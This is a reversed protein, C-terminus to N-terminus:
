PAPQQEQDRPDTGGLGRRQVLVERLAATGELGDLRGPRHREQRGLALPEEGANTPSRRFSLPVFGSVWGAAAM